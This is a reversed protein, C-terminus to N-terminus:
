SSLQTSPHLLHIVLHAYTHISHRILNLPQFAHQFFDLRSPLNSSNGLAGGGNKKKSNHVSNNFKTTLHWQRDFGYVYCFITLLNSSLAILGDEESM